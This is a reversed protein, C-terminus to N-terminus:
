IIGDVLGMELAEDASFYEDTNNSFINYIEGMSLHSNDALIQIMMEEVKKLEALNAKINPHPGGTNSSCHHLMVRTNKAIYRKGPTGGALLPVAASAVKGYGFTAIDRNKKILQMLDYIAFMDTVTGGVSSIFLEIDPADEFDDDESVLVKGKNFTLLAYTVEKLSEENIEGCLGILATEEEEEEGQFVMAEEEEDTEDENYIMINGELQNNM